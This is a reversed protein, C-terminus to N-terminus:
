VLKDKTAEDQDRGPKLKYAFRVDFAVPLLHHHNAPWSTPQSATQSTHSQQQEYKIASNRKPKNRENTREDDLSLLNNEFLLLALYLGSEFLISCQISHFFFLPLVIITKPKTTTTATTKNDKQQSLLSLLQLSNAVLLNFHIFQQDLRPFYKSDNNRRSPFPPHHSNPDSPTSHGSWCHPKMFLKGFLFRLFFSFIEPRQKQKKKVELGFDSLVIDLDNQNLKTM